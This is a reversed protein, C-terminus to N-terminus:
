YFKTKNRNRNNDYEEVSSKNIYTRIWDIEMRPIADNNKDREYNNFDAFGADWKLEPNPSWIRQWTGM